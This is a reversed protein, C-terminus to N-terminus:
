SRNKIHNNLGNLTREVAGKQSMFIARGNDLLEQRKLRNSLLQILEKELEGLSLQLAGKGDLLLKEMERQQHMYPGFIVPCSAYIPEFVNHGGVKDTFSGAVIALTAIEYCHLLQGTTDVVILPEDGRAKEMQTYRACSIGEEKVLEAVKDFREANRPVLLVKLTPLEAWVKKLIPLLQKEEPHHTSGIVLVLNEKNINLQNSFKKKEEKSFLAFDLDYKINGTVPLLDASVGLRLFQEKYAISQVCLLDIKSFIQKAIFPFKLFRKESRDSTKGNVIVIKCKARKLEHFLGPLYESEVGIYLDPQLRNIYRKLIFSLELPLYFFGKAFPFCKKAIQEGSLTNYSFFLLAGPHEKCFASVFPAIAQTEGVSDAHIWVRMGKESKKIEPLKLGVREALSGYFCNSKFHRYFFFPLALVLAIILLINYFFIFM